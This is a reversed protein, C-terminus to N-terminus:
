HHGAFAARAMRADGARGCPDGSELCLRARSPAGTLRSRAGSHRRNGGGCLRVLSPVSVNCVPHARPRARNRPAKAAAKPLTLTRALRDALALALGYFALGGIDPLGRAAVALGTPYTAAVALMALGFFAVQRRTDRALGARIALERSLWALAVLAPTAYCIMLATQYVARSLPAGLALALGPALAPAWSYDAKMSSVFEFILQPFRLSDILHAVAISILRYNMFDAIELDRSAVVYWVNYALLTLVAAVALAYAGPVPRRPRSSVRYTWLGALTLSALGFDPELAAGSLRSLVAVIVAATAAM